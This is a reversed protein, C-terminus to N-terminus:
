DNIVAEWSDGFGDDEPVIGWKKLGKQLKEHEYAIYGEQRKVFDYLYRKYPKKRAYLASFLSETDRAHTLINKRM